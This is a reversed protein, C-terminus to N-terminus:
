APGQSLVCDGSGTNPTLRSNVERLSLESVPVIHIIFKDEEPPYYPSQINLVQFLAQQTVLVLYMNTRLLIFGSMMNIKKFVAM